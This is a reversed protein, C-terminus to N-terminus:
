IELVKMRTVMDAHFDPAVVRGKPTRVVPFSAFFADDSVHWSFTKITRSATMIKNLSAVYRPNVVSLIHKGDTTVAALIIRQKTKAVRNTKMDSGIRTSVSIDWGDSNISKMMRRFEVGHASTDKIRKSVIRLHIMEHLLVSKYLKETMDFYNSIRITYDYASKYFIRRKTRWSMSGLRTRSNGVAFSPEPLENGFYRENFVSFWEKLQNVNVQM